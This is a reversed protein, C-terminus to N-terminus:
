IEIEKSIVQQINYISHSSNNRRGENCVCKELCRRHRSSGPSSRLKTRQSTSNREETIGRCGQTEWCSQLAMQHSFMVMKQQDLQNDIYIQKIASFISKSDCTSIQMIGAFTTKYSKTKSSHLKIHLILMERVSIDTCVNNEQVNDM